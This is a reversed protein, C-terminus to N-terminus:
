WARSTAVGTFVGSIQTDIDADLANGGSVTANALAATRVTASSLVLRCLMEPHVTGNFIAGAFALRSAHSTVTTAENSVAVAASIFRLLCRNQFVPNSVAQALTVSDTTDSM